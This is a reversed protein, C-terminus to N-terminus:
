LYSAAAEGLVVVPAAGPPVLGGLCLIAQTPPDLGATPMEETDPYQASRPGASAIGVANGLRVDSRGLRLVSLLFRTGVARDRAQGPFSSPRSHPDIPACAGAEDKSHSRRSRGGGYSRQDDMEFAGADVMPVSTRTSIRYKRASPPRRAPQAPATAADTARGFLAQSMQSRGANHRCMLVLHQM